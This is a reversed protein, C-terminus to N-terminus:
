GSLVDTLGPSPELGLLRHITPWRLDADVLIVRRGDLAMAFALNVATLSKGEGARASSIALTTLPADIAAFSISARLGRYSEAPPSYPPLANMLRQESAIAPIYGLVPLGLLREVAEPSTIRDDLFELVFAMCGGLLIGLALALALNQAP